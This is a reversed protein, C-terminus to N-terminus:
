APGTRSCRVGARSVTRRWPRRSTIRTPRNLARETLLLDALMWCQIALVPSFTAASTSVQCSSAALGSRIAQAGGPKLNTSAARARFCWQESLVFWPPTQTNYSRESCARVTSSGTKEVNSTTAAYTMRAPKLATSTAM